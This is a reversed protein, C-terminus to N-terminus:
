LFSSLFITVGPWNTIITNTLNYDSLCPWYDFPHLPQKVLYHPPYNAKSKCTCDLSSRPRLGQARQWLLSGFPTWLLSGQAPLHPPPSPLCDQVCPKRFPRFIVIGLYTTSRVSGPNDVQMSPHGDNTALSSNTLLHAWWLEKIDSNM